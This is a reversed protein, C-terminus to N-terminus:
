PSPETASGAAPQTAPLPRVAAEKAPVFGFTAPDFAGYRPNVTVPHKKVTRAVLALARRSVEDESTAGQAIRQVLAREHAEYVALRGVPVVRAEPPLQERGAVANERVAEIQAASVTIGEADAMRRLVETRVLLHVIARRSDGPYKAVLDRSVPDSAAQDYLQDVTRLSIRTDGVFAATAPRAQCAGLPVLASLLAVVALLRRIGHMGTGKHQETVPWAREFPCARDGAM